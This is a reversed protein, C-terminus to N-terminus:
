RTARVDRRNYHGEKAGAKGTAPSSQEEDANVERTKVVPPVVEQTKAAPKALSKVRQAMRVAVLDAADAESIAEFREGVLIGRGNYTQRCTAEMTVTAQTM